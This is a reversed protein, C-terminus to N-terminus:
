FHIATKLIIPIRLSLRTAYHSWNQYAKHVPSCIPQRSMFAFDNESMCHETARVRSKTPDQHDKSIMRSAMSPARRKVCKWFDSPIAVCECNAEILQHVATDEGFDCSAISGGIVLVLEGFLALFQGWDDERKRLPSIFPGGM